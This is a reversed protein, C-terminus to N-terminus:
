GLKLTGSLPIALWDPRNDLEYLIEYLAKDLEWAAIAQRVDDNSVPLFRAQGQRSTTLYSDLFAKRVGREWRILDAPSPIASPAEEREAAGRAYSFSRLMGAVDKMPSTKLRREAISRRPEGEFDLVLFEREPTVLIQGLHLDGHVRIKSRGVLRDFGTTQAALQPVL